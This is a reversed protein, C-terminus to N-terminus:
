SKPRGFGPGEGPAGPAGTAPVEKREKVRKLWADWNENRAKRNAEEMDQASSRVLMKGDPRLILMETSSDDTVERGAINTKSRGGEFDVLILPTKFNVPWGKPQNKADKIGFVKVGGSLERLVYNVLGASWLPLEILQRRGIYEGRAVPMEAVVWSGVPETKNGAGDIRVQPLWSHMQIVARTGDQVGREELLNKLALEKGSREVLDKVNNLYADSDFAYFYMESPVTVIQPIQVWPGELFERKADDPKSVKDRQGFNPNRMRVRIRYQYSFGPKVDMDIFRMLLHDVEQPVSTMMGGTMGPGGPGMSGPYPQGPGGPPAGPPPGGAGMPGPLSMGPPGGAGMPGGPLSM